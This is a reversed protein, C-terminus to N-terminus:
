SMKAEFPRHRVVVLGLDMPGVRQIGVETPRPVARAFRM